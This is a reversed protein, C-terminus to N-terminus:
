PFLWWDMKGIKTGFFDAKQYSFLTRSRILRRFTNGKCQNELQKYFMWLECSAQKM